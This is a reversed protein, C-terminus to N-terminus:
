IIGKLLCIVLSVGGRTSPPIHAAYLWRITSDVVTNVQLFLMVVFSKLIKFCHKKKAIINRKFSKFPSLLENIPVEFYTSFPKQKLHFSSFDSFSIVM